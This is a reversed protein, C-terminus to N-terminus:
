IQAARLEKAFRHDGDVLPLVEDIAPALDLSDADVLMSEEEVGITFPLPHDFAAEIDRVTLRPTEEWSPAPAIGFTDSAPLGRAHRTRTMVGIDENAQPIGRAASSSVSRATYTLQGSAWAASFRWNCSTQILSYM